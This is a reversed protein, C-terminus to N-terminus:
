LGLSLVTKTYYLQSLSPAEACLTERQEDHWPHRSNSSSLIHHTVFLPTVEAVAADVPISGRKEAFNGSNVKWTQVTCEYIYIYICVYPRVQTHSCEAAKCPWRRAKKSNGPRIRQGGWEIAVGFGVRSSVAPISPSSTM